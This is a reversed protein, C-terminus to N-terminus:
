HSIISYNDLKKQVAYTMKNNLQEFADKIETNLMIKSFQSTIEQDKSTSLMLMGAMVWEIKNKLAYCFRFFTMMNEKSALKTLRGM